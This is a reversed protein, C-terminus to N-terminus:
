YFDPYGQDPYGQGQDPYFPDPYPDPYPGQDPYQEDPPDTIDELIPALFQFVEPSTAMMEDLQEESMKSIAGMIRMGEDDFGQLLKRQDASLLTRHRLKRNAVETGLDVVGASTTLTLEDPSSTITDGNALFLTVTVSTDTTEHEFNMVKGHYYTNALQYGVDKVLKITNPDLLYMDSLSWAVTNEGMSVAKADGNVGAITMLVGSEDPKADKAAEVAAMCVCFMVGCFLVAIVGIGMMIKRMRGADQVQANMQAGLNVLERIGITGDGDVDMRKLTELIEKEEPDLQGDGDIDINKAIEAISIVALPKKEAAAAEV